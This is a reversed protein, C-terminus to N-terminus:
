LLLLLLLIFYSDCKYIINVIDVVFVLIIVNINNHIFIMINNIIINIIM